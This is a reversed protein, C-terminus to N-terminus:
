EPCLDEVNCACGQGKHCDYRESICSDGCAKGLDCKKCCEAAPRCAQPEAFQPEPEPPAEAVSCGLAHPAVVMTAGAGAPMVLGVLMAGLLGAARFSPMFGM